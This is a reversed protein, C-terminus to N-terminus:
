LLTNRNALALASITDLLADLTDRRTIVFQCDDEKRYPGFLVPLPNYCCDDCSGSCYEFPIGCKKPDFSISLVVNEDSSFYGGDQLKLIRFDRSGEKFASKQLTAIAFPFVKGNMRESSEAISSIISINM